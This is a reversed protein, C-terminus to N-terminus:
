CQGFRPEAHDVGVQVLPEALDLASMQTLDDHEAAFRTRDFPEFREVAPTRKFALVRRRGLESRSITGQSRCDIM